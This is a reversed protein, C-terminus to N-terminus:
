RRSFALEYRAQLHEFPFTGGYIITECPMVTSLFKEAMEPRRAKRGEKALIIRPIRRQIATEYGTLAEELSTDGFGDDIVEVFMHALQVNSRVRALRPYNYMLCAGPMGVFVPHFGQENARYGMQRLNFHAADRIITDVVRQASSSKGGLYVYKAAHDDSAVFTSYWDSLVSSQPNDSAIIM